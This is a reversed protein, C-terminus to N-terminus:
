RSITKRDVAIKKTKSVSQSLSNVSKISETFRHEKTRTLRGVLTNIEPTGLRRKEHTINRPVKTELMTGVKDKM